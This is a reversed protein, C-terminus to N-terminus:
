KTDNIQAIAEDIWEREERTAIDRAQTLGDLAAPEGLSVLGDLATKWIRPDGNQLCGTLFPVADASRYEAIIQVLTVKVSADSAADFADVVHPLAAPGAEVLSHWAEDAEPGSLESVYDDVYKQLNTM